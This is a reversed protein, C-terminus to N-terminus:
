PIPGISSLFISFCFSQWFKKLLLFRDSTNVKYTKRIEDELSNAFYILNGTFPHLYSVITCLASCGIGALNDM